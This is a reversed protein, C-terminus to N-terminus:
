ADIIIWQTFINLMSIYRIMWLLGIVNYKKWLDHGISDLTREKLFLGYHIILINRSDSLNVWVAPTVLVRSWYNPACIM